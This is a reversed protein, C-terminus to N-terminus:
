DRKYGGKRSVCKHTPLIMMTFVFRPGTTKRTIFMSSCHSNGGWRDKCATIRAQEAMRARECHGESRAVKEGKSVWVSKANDAGKRVKHERATRWQSGTSVHCDDSVWRSAGITSHGEITCGGITHDSWGRSHVAKTPGAASQCATSEIAALWVYCVSRSVCYALLEIRHWWPPNLPPSIISPPTIELSYLIFKSSVQKIGVERIFWCFTPKFTCAM